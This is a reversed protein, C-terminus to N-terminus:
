ALAARLRLGAGRCSDGLEVVGCCYSRSPITRRGAQLLALAHAQTGPVVRTTSLFPYESARMRAVAVFHWSPRPRPACTSGRPRAELCRSSAGADQADEEAIRDACRLTELAAASM